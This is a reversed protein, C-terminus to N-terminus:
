LLGLVKSCCYFELHLGWGHLFRVSVGCFEVVQRLKQTDDSSCMWAGPNLLSPTGDWGGLWVQPGQLFASWGTGLFIGEEGCTGTVRHGPM